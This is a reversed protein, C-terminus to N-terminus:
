VDQNTEILKDFEIGWYGVRHKYQLWEKRYQTQTTALPDFDRSTIAKEHTYFYKANFRERALVRCTIVSTDTHKKPAVEIIGQKSEKLKRKFTPKKVDFAWMLYPITFVNKPIGQQSTKKTSVYKGGSNKDRIGTYERPDKYNCGLVHQMGELCSLQCQYDLLVRNWLANKDNAPLINHEVLVDKLWGPKEHRRTTLGYKLWEMSSKVPPPQLVANLTSVKDPRQRLIVKTTKFPMPVVVVRALLIGREKRSYMLFHVDVATICVAGTAGDTAETHLAIVCGYGGDSCLGPSYDAEVDVWDGVKVSALEAQEELVSKRKCHVMTTVARSANISKLHEIFTTSCLKDYTVALVCAKVHKNEVAKASKSFKEVVNNRESENMANIHKGAVSSKNTLNIVQVAARKRSATANEVKSLKKKTTVVHVDDPTWGEEKLWLAYAYNYEETDLDEADGDSYEVTYLENKGEKRYATIVGYFIGHEDFLRCVTEGIALVGFKQALDQNLYTGDKDTDNESERTNTCIEKGSNDEATTSSIEKGDNSSM